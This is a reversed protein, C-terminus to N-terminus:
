RAGAVARPYAFRDFDCEYAGYLRDALAPTYYSAWHEHSSENIASTAARRLADSARLHDLVRIFDRAFTEVKGVFDLTIGPMSLIDDQVQLHIDCRRRAVAAVFTVFDAF